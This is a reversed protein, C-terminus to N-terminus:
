VGLLLRVRGILGVVQSVIAIGEEVLDVGGEIKSEIAPNLLVLKEKMADRLSDRDAKDLEAVEQKLAEVDLASLAMLEDSLQFVTFIGHKNIIKDGVNVLEIAALVIKKIQEVGHKGSM